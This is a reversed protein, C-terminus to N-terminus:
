NSPPALAARALIAANEITTFHMDKALEERGRVTALAEALRPGFEHATEQHFGLVVFVDVSPRARLRAHAQEFIAVIEAATTYDAFAAIPM